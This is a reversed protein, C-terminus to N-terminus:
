KGLSISQVALTKGYSLRGILPGVRFRPTALRYSINILLSYLKEATILLMFVGVRSLPPRRFSNFSLKMGRAHLKVLSHPLSTQIALNECLIRWFIELKFLGGAVDVRSCKPPRPVRTAERSVLQLRSLCRYSVISMLTASHVRAHTRTRPGRLFTGRHGHGLSRVRSCVHRTYARM